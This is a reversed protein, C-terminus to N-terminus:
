LLRAEFCRVFSDFKRHPRLCLPVSTAVGKTTLAASGVAHGVRSRGRGRGLSLMCKMRVIYSIYSSISVSQNRVSHQPPCVCCVRAFVLLLLCFRSRSPRFSFCAARDAEIGRDSSDATLVSRETNHTTVTVTEHYLWQRSGEKQGERSETVQKRRRECVPGGKSVTSTYKIRM